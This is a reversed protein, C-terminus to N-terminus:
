AFIRKSLWLLGFRSLSNLCLIIYELSKWAHRRIDSAGEETVIEVKAGEEEGAGAGDAIDVVVIVAVEEGEAVAAGDVM